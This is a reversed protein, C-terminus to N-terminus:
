IKDFSSQTTGNYPRKGSPFRVLTVRTNKTPVSLHQWIKNWVGFITNPFPFPFLFYTKSYKKETLVRHRKELDPFRHEVELTITALAM